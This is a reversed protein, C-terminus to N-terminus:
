QDWPCAHFGLGLGMSAIDKTALAHVIMIMMMILLLDHLVKGEHMM